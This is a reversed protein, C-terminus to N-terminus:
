RRLATFINYVKCGVCYSLIGELLACVVIIALISLSVTSLGVYWFILSLAFLTAAVLAAFRKPAYDIQVNKVGFFRIIMNAGRSFPSFLPNIGKIVFDVMLVALLLYLDFFAAILSLFAVFISNLRVSNEDVKQLSIPCSAM